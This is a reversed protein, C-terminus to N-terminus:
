SLLTAREREFAERLAKGCSEGCVTFCVDVGEKRAVSDAGTVLGSITRGGIPLPWEIPGGAFPEIADRWAVRMNLTFREPMEDLPRDCWACRNIVDTADDQEVEGLEDEEYLEESEDVLPMEEDADLVLDVIEVDFWDRFLHPTRNRPWREDDQTWHSLEEDFIQDAYTDILQESDIPEDEEHVYVLYATPQARADELSVKSRLVGLGNAWEVCRRKPRVLLLVRDILVM